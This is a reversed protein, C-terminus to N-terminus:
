ALTRNRVDKAIQQPTKDYEYGLKFLDLKSATHTSKTQEKQNM